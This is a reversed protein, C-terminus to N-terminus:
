RCYKKLMLWETRTMVPTTGQNDFGAAMDRRVKNSPHDSLFPPATDNEELREFLRRYGGNDIHAAQLRRLGDLDAEEEQTRTFGMNLFFEAWNALSDADGVIYGIGGATLMHTIVGQMVHRHRAHEIEHALVGAIEEASTAQELLGTNITIQGGLQAYANIDRDKAVRVDITIDGDGPQLPYIRATLRQLLAEAAPDPKCTETERNLTHGLKQEWRWPIAHALPSLGFGLMVALGIAALLWVLGKLKSAHDGDALSADM